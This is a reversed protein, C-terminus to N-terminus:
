NGRPQKPNVNSTGIYNTESDRGTDNVRPMQMGRTRKAAWGDGPYGLGREYVVMEMKRIDCIEQDEIDMGPPLSQLLANVGYPTGKKALYGSNKIGVMENGLLESSDPLVDMDALPQRKMEHRKGGRANASKIVDEKTPADGGYVETAIQDPTIQPTEYQGTGKQNVMQAKAM